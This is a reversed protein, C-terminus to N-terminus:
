KIVYFKRIRKVLIAEILGKCVHLIQTVSWPLLNVENLDEDLDEKPAVHRYM